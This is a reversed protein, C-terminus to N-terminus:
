PATGAFIPDNEGEGLFAAVREVVVPNKMLRSHGLGRTQLLRANDWHRLMERSSAIPVAGDGEDHVLLIADVRRHAEGKTADLEELPRQGIQEMIRRFHAAAARPLKLTDVVERYFPVISGPVAVLVLRELHLDPALHGLVYLTAAGGFSHCILGKVSGERRILALLAEGYQKMNTQKGESEGHAPGDLAIVRYGRAVLPPVFSRLATGRSEWGHALLITRDGEGWEYVRLPLSQFFFTTRQAKELWEDSNLHRARYRPTTFIRYAMRAALRPALPGLLSFGARLLRIVPPLPIPTEVEQVQAEAPLIEIRDTIEM